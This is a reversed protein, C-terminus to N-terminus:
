EEGLVKEIQVLLSELKKRKKPDDWAQKMKKGINSLRKQPSIEQKAVKQQEIPILEKARQKIQSLSLNVAVAEDLLQNRAEENKLCAIARAKTYALDGRRLTELVESPLNLLPLRNTRFSEPTGKGFEKLIQAIKEFHPTVNDRVEQGRGKANKASNLISIVDEQSIKLRRAMLELLGETEEVPNLDERLLNEGLSLEFATDDDVDSVDVPITQLGAEQAARYRREGAILEYQGGAGQPLPRVWISGKFGHKKIKQALDTVDHPDIYKRPQNPNIHISSLSVEQSSKEGGDFVSDFIFEETLKDRLSRRKTM